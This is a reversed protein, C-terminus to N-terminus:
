VQDECVIDVNCWEGNVIQSLRKTSHDLSPSCVLLLEKIRESPQPRDVVEECSLERNRRQQKWLELRGPKLGELKLVRTEIFPSPCPTWHRSPSPM